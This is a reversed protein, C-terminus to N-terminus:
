YTRLGLALKLRKEEITKDPLEIFELPPIAIISASPGLNASKNARTDKM